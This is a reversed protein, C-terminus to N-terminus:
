KNHCLYVIQLHEPYDGEDLSLVVILCCNFPYFRHFILHNVKHKTSNHKRTWHKSSHEEVLCEELCQVLFCCSLWVLYIMKNKM